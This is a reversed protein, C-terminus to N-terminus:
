SSLAFAPQGTPAVTLKMRAPLSEVTAVMVALAPGRGSVIENTHALANRLAVIVPLLPETEHLVENADFESYGTVVGHECIDVVDFDRRVEAANHQCDYSVLPETIERLKIAHTFVRRM